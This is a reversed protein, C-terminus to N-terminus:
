RDNGSGGIVGRAKRSQLKEYNANAVEQPSLQYVGCVMYWFAMINSLEIAVTRLADESLLGHNDRIAKKTKGSIVGASHMMQVFVADLFSVKDYELLPRFDRLLEAGSIELIKDLMSGTVGHKNSLVAVYWLIDGLEKKVESRESHDKDGRVVLSTEAIEEVLGFTPYIFPLVTTSGDSCPIQLSPFQATTLAGKTYADFEEVNLKQLYFSTPTGVTTM